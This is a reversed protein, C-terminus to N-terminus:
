NISKLMKRAKDRDLANYSGVNCTFGGFNEYVAGSTAYHTVKNNKVRYLIGRITYVGDNKTKAKEKILDCNEITLRNYNM